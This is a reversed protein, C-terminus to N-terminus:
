TSDLHKFLTERNNKVRMSKKTKDVKSEQGDQSEDRMPDLYKQPLSNMFSVLKERDFGYIAQM